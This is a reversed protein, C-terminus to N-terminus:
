IYLIYLLTFVYKQENCLFGYTVPCGRDDWFGSSGMVACNEGEPTHKSDNPEGPAWNTYSIPCGNASIWVGEEDADTYGILATWFPQLLGAAINNDNANEITALTTNYTSLCYANADNWTASQSVYIYKPSAILVFFLLVTIINEMKQTKM